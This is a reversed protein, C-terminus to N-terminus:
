KTGTKQKGFPLRRYLIKQVGAQHARNKPVIWPDPTGHQSFYGGNKPYSAPIGTKLISL